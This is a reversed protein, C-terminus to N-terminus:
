LAPFNIGENKLLLQDFIGFHIHKGVRKLERLVDKLREKKIYILVNRCIVADFSRDKFPL